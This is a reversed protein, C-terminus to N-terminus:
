DFRASDTGVSVGDSMHGATYRALARRVTETERIWRSTGVRATSSIAVYCRSMRPLPVWFALGSEVAVKTDPSRGAQRPSSRAPGGLDSWRLPLRKDGYGAIQFGFQIFVGLRAVQASHSSRFGPAFSLWTSVPREVTQLKLFLTSTLHGLPKWGPRLLFLVALVRIRGGVVLGIHNTRFAADRAV